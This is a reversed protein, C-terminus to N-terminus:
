VALSILTSEVTPIPRVKPLAAHRYEGNAVGSFVQNTTEEIRTSTAHLKRVAKMTLVSLLFRNAVQLDASHVLQSRV